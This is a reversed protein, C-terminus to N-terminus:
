IKEQKHQLQQIIRPRLQWCPSGRAVPRERALRVLGQEKQLLNIGEAIPHLACGSINVEKTVIKPTGFLSM